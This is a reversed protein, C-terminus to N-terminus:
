PSPWEMREILADSGARRHAGAHRVREVVGDGCFGKVARAKIALGELSRAPADAIRAGLDDCAGEGV